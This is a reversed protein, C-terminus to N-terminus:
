IQQHTHQGFSMWRGQTYTHTHACTHSLSRSSFSLYFSFSFFTSRQSKTDDILDVPAHAAWVGTSEALDIMAIRGTCMAIHLMCQSHEYCLNPMRHILPEKASFSRCSTVTCPPSSVYSAKLQLDNEAFSGSISQSHECCLNHISMVCQRTDMAGIQSRTHSQAHPLSLCLSLCLSLSVSFARARIIHQFRSSLTSGLVSWSPYQAPHRLCM